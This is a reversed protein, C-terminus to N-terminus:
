EELLVGTRAADHQCQPWPSYGRACEGLEWIHLYNDSTGFVVEVYGDNDIDAIVFGGYIFSPLTYPFGLDTLMDTNNAFAYVMGQKTGVLLDAYDYDDQNDLEGLAPFPQRNNGSIPYANDDWGPVPNGDEYWAMAQNESNAIVRDAGTAIPDWDAMVCCLVNSSTLRTPDCELPSSLDDPDVLYVPSYTPTSSSKKRSLAISNGSMPLSGTAPIGQFNYGSWKKESYVEGAEYDYLHLWSDFPSTAYITRSIIIEEPGTGNLDYSSVWSFPVVESTSELTVNDLVELAGDQVRFIYLNDRIVVAIEDRPIEEPAEPELDSLCVTHPDTWADSEPHPFSYLLEGSTGSFVFLSDLGDVIVEPLRDGCVNGIVPISATNAYLRYLRYPDTIWMPSSPNDYQYAAILYGGTTIVIEMDGDGDLDALAPYQAWGFTRVPWGDKNPYFDDVNVVAEATNNDRWSDPTNEQPDAEAALHIEGSVGSPPNHWVFQLTEEEGPDLGSCRASSTWVQGDYTIELSANFSGSAVAGANRVTVQLEPEGSGGSLSLTPYRNMELDAPSVILDCCDRFKIRDGIDVAPDGLLNFQALENRNWFFYLYELRARQVAPGVQTIGDCYVAELIGRGYIDYSDTSSSNSGAFVAIAGCDTNKIFDEAMCDSQFDYPPIANINSCLEPYYNLYDHEDETHNFTGGSCCLMLLFPHWHGEVPDLAIVDDDDFTSDRAGLGGSIEWDLGASFMHFDGHDTYFAVQSGREFVTECALIWDASTMASGDPNPPDSNITDDGDGCYYNDWEYGLWQRFTDTWEFGPSWDDIGNDPLGDEHTGALRTLYRRYAPGPLEDESEYEVILDLMDQLNDTDRVPLRGVIMDPFATITERSDGFCVYWEDNAFGHNGSERSPLFWPYVFCSFDEHDGILLLYTSRDGPSGWNWMAETFNRIVDPSIHPEGGNFQDYIDGTTAIAIDFGNLEARYEAFDDIWDGDLMDSIIIVYDPVVPPGAVLDEPRYVQGTSPSSYSYSPTYGILRDGILRDYYGLGADSWVPDAGEFNVYLEIDSWVRLSDESALYQIPYVDVVAVRQDRLRFEGSLVAQVEPYWETSAYASSDKRFFEKIWPTSLSDAVLSDLPAPYLPLCNIMSMCGASYVLTLDSEDPVAIFCTVVPLEPYGVEGMPRTGPTGKFRLYNTRDHSLTDSQLGSLEVDFSIFEDLTVNHLTLPESGAPCGAGFELWGAFSPEPIILFVTLVLPITFSKSLFM